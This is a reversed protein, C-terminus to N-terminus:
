NYKQRPYNIVQRYLLGRDYGKEELMDYLEKRQVKSYDPVCISHKKSSMLDDQLISILRDADEMTKLLFLEMHDEAQFLVKNNLAVFSLVGPFRKVYKLLLDYTFNVGRDYSRIVEEEFYERKECISFESDDLDVEVNRGYEDVDFLKKQNKPCLLVLEYKYKKGNEFQKPFKINNNDILKKFKTSAGQYSKYTRIVKKLKKNRFLVIKYM